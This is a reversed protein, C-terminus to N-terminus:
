IVEDVLYEAIYGLIEFDYDTELDKFEIYKHVDDKVLRYALQDLFSAALGATGDLHLIVKSKELVPLLIDEYLEDASYETVSRTRGGPYETWDSIKIIQKEM